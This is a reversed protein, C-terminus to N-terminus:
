VGSGTEMVRMWETLLRWENGMLEISVNDAM